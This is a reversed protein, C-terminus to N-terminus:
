INFRLGRWKYAPTTMAICTFALQDRVPQRMPEKPNYLTALFYHNADPMFFEKPKLEHRLMYQKTKEM